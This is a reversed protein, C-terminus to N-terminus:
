DPLTLPFSLVTGKITVLGNLVTYRMVHFMTNVRPEPGPPDHAAVRFAVFGTRDFLLSSPDDWNEYRRIKVNTLFSPGAAYLRTEGGFGLDMITGPGVDSARFTRGIAPLPETM